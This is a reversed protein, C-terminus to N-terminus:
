PECPRNGGLAQSSIKVLREREACLKKPPMNGAHAHGAGTIFGGPQFSYPNNKALHFPGLPSDGEYVGDAYVNFETGPAAYQLYYKGNYKTM